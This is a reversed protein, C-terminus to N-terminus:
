AGQVAARLPPAPLPREATGPRHLERAHALALRLRCGYSALDFDAARRQAAEAMEALLDREGDLREIAAVIAEPDRIPVIFGERGDRVVTGTNATTVVPLGAALAEYVVTASGECLSPLLFVDAWAFHALIEARPVIGAVEMVAGLAANVPGPVGCPGVLRFRAKGALRRAAELVYPTGKRLGSVGVTLVKLPGKRPVKPPLTFRRDVGYPVVACRATGGSAAIVGDRVFESGCVVLDAAAWEAKERQAFTHAFRDGDTDLRWEPFVDEEEEILRDLLDRPAIIQEVVTWLGAQRAAVLQELSDGSFGYFGGADGFGRRAVLRAFRPAAWLTAATERSPTGALMRRLGLALGFAPFDTVREPAIGEPIRGCLRRVAKPLLGPPLRRGLWRPWGRHAAIDTYLRELQGAAELIRPVGYHMRAGLQSVVIRDNM